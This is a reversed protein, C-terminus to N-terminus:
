ELSQNSLVLGWDAVSVTVILDNKQNEGPNPDISGEGVITATINYQTNKATVYSMLDNSIRAKYYRIVDGPTTIAELVIITGTAAKTAYNPLVYFPAFIYADQDKLGAYPYKFTYDTADPTATSNNAGADMHYGNDEDGLPMTYGSTNGGDMKFPAIFQAARNVTISTVEKLINTAMPLGTGKDMAIKNVRLAVKAVDRNLTIPLTYPSIGAANNIVAKGSMIFSGNVSNLGGIYSKEIKETLASFAAETTCAKAATEVNAPVNAFVFVTTANMPFKVTTQKVGAALEVLKYSPNSGKDDDATNIFVLTKTLVSETGEPTSVAYTSPSALRLTMESFAKTQTGESVEDNNSCSGFAVLTAAAMLWLGKTKM